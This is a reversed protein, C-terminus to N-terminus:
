KEVQDIDAGPRCVKQVNLKEKSQPDTVLVETFVMGKADRISMGNLEIIKKSSPDQGVKNIPEFELKNDVRSKAEAEVKKVIDMQADFDKNLGQFVKHFLLSCGDGTEMKDVVAKYDIESNAM